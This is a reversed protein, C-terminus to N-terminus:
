NEPDTETAAIKPSERPARRCRADPESHGARAHQYLDSAAGCISRTGRPFRWRSDTARASHDRLEQLPQYGVRCGAQALRLRPRRCVITQGRCLVVVGRAVPDSVRLQQPNKKHCRIIGM